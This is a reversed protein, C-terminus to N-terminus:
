QVETGTAVVTETGTAVETGTSVEVTETGTAVETGTSVEVAEAGSSVEETAVETGTSVEVAEDAPKNCSALSLMALLAVSVLLKKM